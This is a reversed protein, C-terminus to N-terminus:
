LCLLQGTPLHGGEADLCLLTFSEHLLAAVADLLFHELLVLDLWETWGRELSQFRHRGTGYHVLCVTADPM